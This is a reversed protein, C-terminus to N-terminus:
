TRDLTSYQGNLVHSFIILAFFYCCCCFFITDVKHISSTAASDSILSGPMVAVTVTLLLPFVFRYMCTSFFCVDGSIDNNIKSALNQKFM